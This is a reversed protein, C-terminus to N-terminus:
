LGLSGLSLERDGVELFRLDQPFRERAKTVAGEPDGLFAFIPFCTLPPIQTDSSLVM